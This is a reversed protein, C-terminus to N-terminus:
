IQLNRSQSAIYDIEDWVLDLLLGLDSQRSSLSLWHVRVHGYNVFLDYDLYMDKDGYLILTSGTPLFFAPFTGGGVASVFIASRTAIDVQEDLSLGFMHVGEVQVNPIHNKLASIEHRFDLRRSTDRSSLISFTVRYPTELKRKPALGMNRLLFSRFRQLEPGRRVNVQSELDSSLWGHGKSVHDSLAGYGSAAHSVCIYKAETNSVQVEAHFKTRNRFGLAAEM